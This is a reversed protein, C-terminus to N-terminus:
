KKAEYGDLSKSHGRYYKGADTLDKGGKASVHCFTCAKKTARADDPKAFSVSSSLTLALALVCGPVAFKAFKM